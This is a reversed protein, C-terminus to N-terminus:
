QKEKFRWVSHPHISIAWTQELHWSYKLYDIVKSASNEYFAMEFSIQFITIMILSKKLFNNKQKSLVLLKQILIFGLIQSLTGYGKNLFYQFKWWPKSKRKFFYTGRKKM